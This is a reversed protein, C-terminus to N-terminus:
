PAVPKGCAELTLRRVCAAVAEVTTSVGLMKPDFTAARSGRQTNVIIFPLGDSGPEFTLTVVERQYPNM